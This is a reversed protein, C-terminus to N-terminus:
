RTYDNKEAANDSLYEIFEYENEDHDFFYYRKRFPHDLVHNGEEYGARRMRGVLADSDPVVFGIHNLGPHIYPKHPGKESAGRDEISLYSSETGVHVWRKCAIGEGGGRIQFEPMATQLFAVTAEIDTSTINIHELFPDVGKEHDGAHYRNHQSRLVLM